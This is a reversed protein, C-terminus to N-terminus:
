ACHSFFDTKLELTVSYRSAEPSILLDTSSTVVISKSEFVITIAGPSFIMCPVTSEIFQLQFVGYLFPLVTILVVIVAGLPWTMLAVIVISPLSPLIMKSNSSVGSLLIRRVNSLNSSLLYFRESNKKKKLFALLTLFFLPHMFPM